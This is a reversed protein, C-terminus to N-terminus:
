TPELDEMCEGLQVTEIEVPGEVHLEFHLADILTNVPLRFPASRQEGAWGGVGPHGNIVMQANILVIDDEAPTTAGAWVDYRRGRVTIRARAHASMSGGATPVRRCQVRACSLALPRPLRFEKSKWDGSAFQTAVNAGPHEYDWRLLPRYAGSSATGGLFPANPPTFNTTYRCVRSIRVQDFFCNADANDAAHGRCIDMSSVGGVAGGITGVITAQGVNVGNLWVRMVNSADRTVAIFVWQGTPVTAGSSLFGGASSNFLFDRPGPRVALQTFGAGPFDIRNAFLNNYPDPNFGVFYFWGEWTLPGPFVFLTGDTDEVRLYNTSESSTGPNRFASFGFIHQATSVTGNGVVSVVPRGSLETLTGTHAQVLISVDEFDPDGVSPFAADLYYLEATEPDAYAAIVNESFTTIRLPGDRFDFILKTTTTNYTALLIYQDDFYWARLSRNEADDPGVIAQWQEKTYYAESENVFNSGASILGEPSCYLIQDGTNVISRKDLCSQGTEVRRESMQLPHVGVVVYPKGKTTVYLANGYVELGVIDVDLARRYETPWAHPFGPESFCLVNDFFGALIGNPMAVLGRMNSDPVDWGDTQLVEGLDENAVSDTFGNAINSVLVEGVFQFATDDSGTNTRYVWIRDISRRETPPAAFTTINVDTGVRITVPNSHPSPASEEGLHSVYTYVYARTEVDFDATAPVVPDINSGDREIMFSTSGAFVFDNATDLTATRQGHNDWIDFPVPTTVLDQTVTVSMPVASGTIRIIDNVRIIHNPITLVVESPLLFFSKRKATSNLRTLWKHKHIMPVANDWYWASSDPIMGMDEVPGTRGSAVVRVNNEDIVETVRLRTGVNLCTLKQSGGQPAMNATSLGANRGDEGCAAPNLGSNTQLNNNINLILTDTRVGTILGVSGESPEPLAEVDLVPSTEPAPVGLRFWTQPYKTDAPQPYPPTSDDISTATFMRPEGDGTYYHRQEASETPGPVLDVDATFYMWFDTKDTRRHFRYLTQPTVGAGLAISPDVGTVWVRQKARPRLFGRRLDVDLATVAESTDLRVDTARPRLGSFQELKFGAM